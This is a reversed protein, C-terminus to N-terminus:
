LYKGKSEWPKNGDGKKNVGGQGGGSGGGQNNVFKVGSAAIAVLCNTDGKGKSPLVDRVANGMLTYFDTSQPKNSMVDMNKEDHAGDIIVLRTNKLCLAGLEVLRALRSPNGTAVPYHQASLTECQEAVKIHKSFLKAVPVQLIAQLSGAVRNTRQGAGCIVLVVPCGMDDSPKTLLKRFDPLLSTIASAIPCPMNLGSDKLIASIGTFDIEKLPALPRGSEKDLVMHKVFLTYASEADMTTEGKKPQQQIISEGSEAIQADDEASKKSKNAAIVKKLEEFKRKKKLAKSDSADEKGNKKSDVADVAPTEVVVASSGEDEGSDYAGGARLDGVNDEGEFYDEQIDDGM